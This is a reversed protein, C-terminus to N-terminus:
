FRRARGKRGRAGGGHLEGLAKEVGSFEQGLERAARKLGLLFEGEALIAFALFGAFFGYAFWEMLRDSLLFPAKGEVTEIVSFYTNQAYWGAYAFLVLVACLVVVRWRWNEFRRRRYHVLRSYNYLRRVDKRLNKLAMHQM